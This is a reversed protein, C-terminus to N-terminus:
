YRKSLLFEDLVFNHKKECVDGGTNDVVLVQDLWVYGPPKSLTNFIELGWLTPPNLYISYIIMAHITDDLLCCLVMM